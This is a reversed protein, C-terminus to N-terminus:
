HASSVSASATNSEAGLKSTAWFVGCLLIAGAIFFFDGQKRQYEVRTLARFQPVPIPVNWAVFKGDSPQVIAPPAIAVEGQFYDRSVRQVFAVLNPHAQVADRLTTDPLPAHLAVALFGYATADFSSPQAGFFFAASDGLRLALANCIAIAQSKATASDSLDLAALLSLVHQRRRTRVLYGLPFPLADGYVSRTVSEFNVDVAWFFHQMVAHFRENLLADLAVCEARQQASLHRDIDGHSQALVSRWHRHSACVDRVRVFPLQRSPSASERGDNDVTYPLRAMRLTAHVSLCRADLSALGWQSRFSYLTIDSETM